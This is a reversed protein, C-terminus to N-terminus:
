NKRLQKAFIKCQRRCHRCPCIEVRVWGGDKREAQLVVLIRDEKEGIDKMKDVNRRGGDRILRKNLTYDIDINEEGYKM